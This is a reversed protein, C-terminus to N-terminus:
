EVNPIVKRAREVLDPLRRGHLWPHLTRDYSDLTVTNDTTYGEAAAHREVARIQRDYEYLIGSIAGDPKPTM